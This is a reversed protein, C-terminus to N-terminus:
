QSHSLIISGLKKITNDFQMITEEDSTPKIQELAKEFHAQELTAEKAFSIAKAWLREMDKMSYRDTEEAVREFAIDGEPKRTEQAKQVLFELRTEFSPLPFYASRLRRERVAKAVDQIENVAGIFFVREEKRSIDDLETVFTGVITNLYKAFKRTQNKPTKTLISDTEEFFVVSPAKSRADTLIKALERNPKRGKLFINRPEVKRWFNIVQGKELDGLMEEIKRSKGTGPPGYVLLGAIPETGHERSLSKKVLNRIHQIVFKQNARHINIGEVLSKLSGVLLNVDSESNFYHFSIRICAPKRIYRAFVNLGQLNEVFERYRDATEMDRIKLCVMGTKLVDRQHLVVFHPDDHLAGIFKSVLAQKRNMINELKLTNLVRVAAGFGIIKAADATALELGNNNGLNLTSICDESVMYATFVPFHFSNAKAKKLFAKVYLAGVGEPGLLWKHGDFAYFDCNIHSVDVQINAVAQAGDVVVILEGEDIRRAKGRIERYKEKSEEIIREIPLISGTSFVVHSILLLKTKATIKEVIRQVVLDDNDICDEIKATVPIVSYKENLYRMLCNVTDHEMDTSVVEDESQFPISEFAFQIGNTTSNTFIINNSSESGILESLSKRVDEIKSTLERELNLGVPGRENREAVWSEQAELVARHTPGLGGSNLFARDHRLDIRRRNDLAWSFEPTFAVFRTVRNRLDTVRNIYDRIEEIDPEAKIKAKESIEANADAMEKWIIETNQLIMHFPPRLKSIKSGKSKQLDQALIRHIGQDRLVNDIAVKDNKYMHMLMSVIQPSLLLFPANKHLNIIQQTVLTRTEGEYEGIQEGIELFRKLLDDGKNKLNYLYYREAITRLKPYRQIEYYARILFFQLVWQRLDETIPLAHEIYPRFVSSAYQTEYDKLSLLIDLSLEHISDVAKMSEEKPVDEKRNLLLRHINEELSKLSPKYTSSLSPPLRRELDVFAKLTYLENGLESLRNALKELLDVANFFEEPTLGNEQQRKFQESFASYGFKSQLPQTIVEEYFEYIEDDTLDRIIKELTQDEMIHLGRKQLTAIFEDRKEPPIKLLFQGSYLNGIVIKGWIKIPIALNVFGKGRHCRYLCTKLRSGAESAADTDSGKCAKKAAANEDCDIMMECLNLEKEKDVLRAFRRIKGIPEGSMDEFVVSMKKLMLTLSSQLWELFPEDLIDTLRPLAKM